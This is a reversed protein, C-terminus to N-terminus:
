FLPFAKLVSFFFSFMLCALLVNCLDIKSFSFITVNFEVHLSHCVKALNQQMEKIHAPRIDKLYKLLWGPKVADNSSVFLAIQM